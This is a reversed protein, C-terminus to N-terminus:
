RDGRFRRAIRLQYCPLGALVVRCTLNSQLLAAPMSSWDLAGGHLGRVCTWTLARGGRIGSGRFRNGAKRDRRDAAAPSRAPQGDTEIALHPLAAIEHAHLGARGDDLVAMGPQLFEYDQFAFEDVGVAGHELRAVEDAVLGARAVMRAGFDAAQDRHELPPRRRRRRWGGLAEGVAAGRRDAVAMAGGGGLYAPHDTNGGACPRPVAPQRRGDGGARGRDPQGPQRDAASQRRLDLAAGTWLAGRAVARAWVQLLMIDSPVNGITNSMALTLPTLVSLRDPLLGHDILDRFLAQTQPLDAVVGTVVFLGGFLTLLSWDVAGVLARTEVRRSMFLAAAAFLAALDRPAGLGCAVLLVVTIVVAKLLSWRHLTALTSLDVWEATRRLDAGTVVIMLVAAVLALGARDTRLGPIRGIAMGVYTLAFIALIADTIM